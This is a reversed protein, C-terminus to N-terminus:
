RPYILDKSVNKVFERLSAEDFKELNVFKWSTGEDTSVAFLNVWSEVKQSNLSLFYKIPIVTQLEGESTYFEPHNGIESGTYALGQQTLSQHEAKLDFILYDLGGGMDIIDAHTYDAVKNYDGSVVAEAYQGAQLVLAKSEEVEALPILDGVQDQATLGAVLGLVLTFAAILKNM